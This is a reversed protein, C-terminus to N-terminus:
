RDLLLVVSRVDFPEQHFLPNRSAEVTSMDRLRELGSALAVIEVRHRLVDIALRQRLPHDVVRPRRQFGHASDDLLDRPPQLRKMTELLLLAFM